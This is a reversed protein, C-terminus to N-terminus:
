RLVAPLPVRHSLFKTCGCGSMSVYLTMGDATSPNAWKKGPLLSLTLVTDSAITINYASSKLSPTFKLEINSELM